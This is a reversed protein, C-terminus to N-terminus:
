GGEVVNTSGGSETIIVGATDMDTINASVSAISIGNYSPDASTATHTILLAHNGQAIFDDPAAVTVTQPMNWNGATFILPTPSATLQSSDGSTPTITVNAS